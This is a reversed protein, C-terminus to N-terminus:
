RASRDPAEDITSDGSRLLRADTSRSRAQPLGDAWALRPRSGGSADTARAIPPSTTASDAPRTRLQHDHSPEKALMALVVHQQMPRTAATFSCCPRRERSTVPRAARGTTGETGHVDDVPESEILRTV